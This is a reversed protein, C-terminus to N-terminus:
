WKDNKHKNYWNQWEPFKHINQNTMKALTANWKDSLAALRSRANDAEINGTGQQSALEHLEGYRILLESAIKKRVKEDSGSYNGLAEGAAAQLAPEPSRRAEDCLFKVQEEDKTRGMAKLLQERLPVWPQKDPFRKSAYAKKLAKAGDAGCYGLAASAGVYLSISDPLRLKGGTFVSELGKHIALKDKPGVGAQLKQLLEDIAGLGEQDRACKKDEVAVALVQLKAAVEPDGDKPAAEGAKPQDQGLLSGLWVLASVAVAAVPKM